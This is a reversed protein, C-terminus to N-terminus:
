LEEDHIAGREPPNAGRGVVLVILRRKDKNKGGYHIPEKLHLDLADLLATEHERWKNISIWRSWFTFIIADNGEVFRRSILFPRKYYDNDNNILVSMVDAEIDNTGYPKGYLIMMGTLLLLFFLSIIVDAAISAVSLMMPEFIRQAIYATTLHWAIIFAVVLLLVPVIRFPAKYLMKVGERLRYKRLAWFRKREMPNRSTQKNNNESQM